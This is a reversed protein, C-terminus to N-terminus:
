INIYEKNYEKLCVKCKSMKYKGSNNFMELPKEILCVKCIKM